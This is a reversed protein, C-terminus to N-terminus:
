AVFWFLSWLIIFQFPLWVDHMKEIFRCLDLWILIPLFLVLLLAKCSPGVLPSVLSRLAPEANTGTHPFPNDKPQHRDTGVAPVPFQKIQYDIEDKAHMHQFTNTVPLWNARQMYLISSLTQNKTVLKARQTCICLSSLTIPIQIDSRDATVSLSLALPNELIDGAFLANRNSYWVPASRSSTFEHSFQECRSNPDAISNSTRYSYATAIPSSNAMGEGPLLWHGTPSSATPQSLSPSLVVLRRTPHSAEAHRPGAGPM